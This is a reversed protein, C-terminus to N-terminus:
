LTVPPHQSVDEASEHAANKLSLVDTYGVRVLPLSHSVDPPRGGSAMPQMQSGKSKSGSPGSGSGGQREDPHSIRTMNGHSGVETAGGDEAVNEAVYDDPGVYYVSMEADSRAERAVQERWTSITVTREPGDEIIRRNTEEYTQGAKPGDGEARSEFHGLRSPKSIAPGHRHGRGPPAGQFRGIQRSKARETEEGLQQVSLELDLSGGFMKEMETMYQGYEGYNEFGPGSRDSAGQRGVPGEGRLPHNRRTQERDRHHHAHRWAQEAELASETRPAAPYLKPNFDGDLSTPSRAGNRRTRPSGWETEPGITTTGGQTFADFDDDLPPSTPPPRPRRVVTKGPGYKNPIIYLVGSEIHLDSPSNNTGRYRHLLGFSSISVVQVM